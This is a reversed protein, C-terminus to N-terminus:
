YLVDCGDPLVLAEPEALGPGTLTLILIAAPRWAAAMCFRLLHEITSM